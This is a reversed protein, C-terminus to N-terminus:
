FKGSEWCLGENPVENVSLPPDEAGAAKALHAAKAMLYSKFFGLELPTLVGGLTELVFQPSSEGQISLSGGYTFIELEINFKTTM